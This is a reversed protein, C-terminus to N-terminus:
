RQDQQNRNWEVWGLGDRGDEARVRCLARPFHSVRGDDAELLHAGFGLPELSLSLDGLELHAEEVLGDARIEETSRAHELETLEGDHQLYGVAFRPHQPVSVAHGHTGDALHIASWTWDSAWWDRAGWSHDRQGPGALPIEEGAIRVTGEVSCPIEYRTSHRWRYPLGDTSWRLDIEVEVPSGPERRLPASHDEHAVGAGGARVRYEALPETCEHDAHVDDAAVAQRADDAGTLPLKERALMVTAEGPRVICTGIASVGLNPLRAIRHYVGLGGDEAIADFYWSESWLEEPGPEHAREDDPGPQVAKDMAVTAEADPFGATVRGSPARAAALPIIQAILRESLSAAAIAAIASAM